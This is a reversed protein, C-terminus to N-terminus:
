PRSIEVWLKNTLIYKVSWVSPKCAQFGCYAAQNQLTKYRVVSVGCCFDFGLGQCTYNFKSMIIIFWPMCVLWTACFYLSCYLSQVFLLDNTASATVIGCLDWGYTNRLLDRIFYFTCQQWRLFQYKRTIEGRIEWPKHFMMNEDVSILCEM